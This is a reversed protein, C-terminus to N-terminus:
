GNSTAFGSSTERKKMLSAKLKLFHFCNATFHATVLEDEYSISLKVIKGM